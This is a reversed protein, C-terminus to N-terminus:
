NGKEDIKQYFSTSQEYGDSVVVGAVAMKKDDLVKGSIKQQASASFSILFIALLAAKFKM